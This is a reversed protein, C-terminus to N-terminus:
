RAAWRPIRTASSSTRGARARLLAAGLGAPGAGVVLVDCHDFYRVYRDPDAETPATGLGAALRVVPEYLNKWAWNKGFLDPGMFTKYYFGAGYLPSFLDNVEGVDFALSPWRNQSTAVLGDTLEVQTARLNPTFRGPGRWVGVLANPEEAGASLIGRPRHYKYSRGVLRVGNALLASALTDGEYAGYAVGDFTFSIPRARDIAAGGAVRFAQTM